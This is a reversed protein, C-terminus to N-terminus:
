AVNGVPQTQVAECRGDETFEVRRIDGVMFLYCGTALLAHLGVFILAYAFSGHSAVLYGIAIPTVIGAVGGFTNFLAGCLGSSEKPATDSVVAWGLAGVGKGFFSLSMLFIILWDMQVYNCGILSMSVLMGGVIPVKRAVTLSHGKRLLYDSILGGAIGGVFGCLAPLSAVLGAKLISLGREQVLYIPFWTLFFYTLANICYQAVYIGLMMRNSLLAKLQRFVHKQPEKAQQPTASPADMDVMAGGARLHSMEAANIRKHQWPAYVFGLWVFFLLVGVFGNFYFVAHWGYAQTIYGMLPGFVVLAFYQASNFIAAATGREKTPFWAAAIRSNGPFSPAEALGMMFRLAFLSIVTSVISVHGVAGQLFTFVSWLLISAAYVRRSGFRDLLWGGPLQGMVYSWSFASFLYGMEAPSIGFERQMSSGAMSLSARDAYNITTVIFLIALIWYRVRTPNSTETTSLPQSM